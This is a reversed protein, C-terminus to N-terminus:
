YGSDGLDAGKVVIQASGTTIFLQEGDWHFTVGGTNVENM